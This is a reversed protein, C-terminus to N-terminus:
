EEEEMEEVEMCEPTIGGYTYGGDHRLYVKVYKEPTYEGDVEWGNFGM